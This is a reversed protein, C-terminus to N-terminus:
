FSSEHLISMTTLYPMFHAKIRHVVSADDSSDIMDRRLMIMTKLSFKSLNRPHHCFMGTLMYGAIVERLSRFFSLDKSLAYSLAEHLEQQRKSHNV